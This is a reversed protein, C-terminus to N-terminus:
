IAMQTLQSLTSKAWIDQDAHCEFQEYYVVMRRM